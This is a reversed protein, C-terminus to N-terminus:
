SSAAPLRITFTAGKGPESTVSVEGGHAKAIHEVLALGIGSGRIPKLRVAKARYFREFIQDQEDLDIGPGWDKVSLAVQDGERRLAVAIRKGEPAYKIANDILNLVALTFANADLKVLPLDPDIDAELTMEAKTLRHQSLEIARSVVEGIDGEAFEYANVGREIKAFDLVNDILRALRVSERWIIEAYETAQGASKTRGMALLEGFMSIISLPTKLEHSVNTIFESKLENARRERRIALALFGLGSVIVILATGILASDVIQRRSSAGAPPADRQTVRVRWKDVTESFPQEVVVGGQEDTFPPGYILGGEDDVVRYVRPSRMLFFQPFVLGVLHNLDAELVVYYTRDAETRHEFVFLYPRGNPDLHLFHVHGRKRPALQRLPLQPLVTSLFFKSFGKPHSSVSGDPLPQLNDDLVFISAIAAGHKQPLTQLDALTNLHIANFVADYTDSLQSEIGVVKEEALERMTDVIIGRERTSVESTYSYGYYALGGASALVAFIFINVVWFRRM